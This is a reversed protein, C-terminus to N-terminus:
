AVEDWFYKLLDLLVLLICPRSEKGATRGTEAPFQGLDHGKVLLNQHLNCANNECDTESHKRSEPGGTSCLRRLVRYLIDHEDM